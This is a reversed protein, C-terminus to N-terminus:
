AAEAQEPRRRPRKSEALEELVLANGGAFSAWFEPPISDRQIWSRVTHISVGREAAVDEAKGAAKVIEAHTRMSEAYGLLFVPALLFYHMKRKCHMKRWALLALRAM